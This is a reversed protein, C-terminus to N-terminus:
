VGLLVTDIATTGIAQEFTVTNAGGQSNDVALTITDGADVAGIKANIVLDEAFATDVTMTLTPDAAGSGINFDIGGGDADTVNGQLTINDDTANITITEDGTALTIDGAFTVGSPTVGATVNLTVAVTTNADNAVALSPTGDAGLTIAGATSDITGTVATEAEAGGETLGATDTATINFGDDLEAALAHHSVTLSGAAGVAVTM